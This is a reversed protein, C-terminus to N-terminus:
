STTPSDLFRSGDGLRRPHSRAFGGRFLLVPRPERPGLSDGSCTEVYVTKETVLCAPVFQVTRSAVLLPRPALSMGHAGPAIFVFVRTSILGEQQHRETM